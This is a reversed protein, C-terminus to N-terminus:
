FNDTKPALLYSNKISSIKRKKSLIEDCRMESIQCRTTMEELARKYHNLEREKSQNLKNVELVLALSAEVTNKLKINEIKINVSETSTECSINHINQNQKKLRKNVAKLTAILADKKSAKINYKKCITDECAANHYPCIDDYSFTLDM